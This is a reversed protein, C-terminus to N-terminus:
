PHRRRRHAWTVVVNIVVGWVLLAAITGLVVGAVMWSTFM